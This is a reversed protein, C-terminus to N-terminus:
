FSAGSKIWDSTFDLRNNLWNQSPALVNERPEHWSSSNVELIGHGKHNALNILKIRPKVVNLQFGSYTAYYKNHVYSYERM